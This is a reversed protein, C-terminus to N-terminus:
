LSAAKAMARMERELDGSPAFLVETTGGAEFQALKERVQEATGTLTAAAMAPAVHRRDRESMRILHGEHVHLHREQEPFAEIEERWGAGGPLADVGAGSTEYAGHYMAAVAPGAAEVVRPSDFSEDDAMVTGTQLLASWEFGPIPAAAAMVGDGIEKAIAVGKPGNAAVLIPTGLPRAAVLGDPHIMRVLEGDVRVAEGQLLSRLNRIYTEVFKWPLARHGMTMRATFGTGIAVALRGPALDEITAIASANVLPHRTHPVLVGTGLGIRETAEAARALAIWVDGYLAPSDYSWVRAYGLSEALQAFKAIHRDPPIGISIQV